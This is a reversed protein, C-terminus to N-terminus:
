LLVAKHINFVELRQKVIRDCTDHHGIRISESKELLVDLLNGRKHMIASSKKIIVTCVHIRKDTHYTRAIHSKIHKMEIKMLRERGRMSSATRTGTRNANSSM